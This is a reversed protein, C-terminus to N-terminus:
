RLKPVYEFFNQMDFSVKCRCRNKTWDRGGGKMGDCSWHNYHFPCVGAFDGSKPFNDFSTASSWCRVMRALSRSKFAENMCNSTNNTFDTTSRNHLSNVFGAPPMGSYPIRVFRMEEIGKVKFEQSFYRQIHVVAIETHYGVAMIQQQYSRQKDANDSSQPCFFLEDADLYVILDLAAYEVRAYDYTRSKDGDQDATDAIKKTKYGWNVEMKYFAKYSSDQQDAYAKNYKSPHVLQFVTFPYYDFGPLSLLEKIFQWHLGFRDYVIVRWGMRHYYSVFMFLMPGSQSNKFTQVTCVAHPRFDTLMLDRRKMEREAAPYTKLEALLERGPDGGRGSVPDFESPRLHLELETPYDAIPRCFYGQEMSRAHLFPGTEDDLDVPCFVAVCPVLFESGTDKNTHYYCYLRNSENKDFGHYFRKKRSNSFDLTLYGTGGDVFGKLTSELAVGIFRISCAFPRSLFGREVTRNWGVSNKQHLSRMYWSGSTHHDVSMSVISLRNPTEIADWSLISSPVRFM